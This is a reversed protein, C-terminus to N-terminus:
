PSKIGLPDVLRKLTDSVACGYVPFSETPKGDRVSTILAVDQIDPGQKRSTYGGSYRVIGHRDAIVMLPASEVGYREPLEEPTVADAEYGCTRIAGTIVDTESILVIRETVGPVPDRDLVHNLVRQSCPCDAYLFHLVRYPAPDTGNALPRTLPVESGVAPRPLAVWHSVMLCAVICTMGVAWVPM